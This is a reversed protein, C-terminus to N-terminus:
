RTEYAALITSFAGPLWCCYQSFRLMTSCDSSNQCHQEEAQGNNLAQVILLAQDLYSDMIVSGSM